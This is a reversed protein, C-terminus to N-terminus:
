FVVTERRPVDWVWPLGALRAIVVTILLYFCYHFFGSGFDLDLSALAALAGLVFFPPGVILWVWLGEADAVLQRAFFAWGAWLLVYAAACISARLYLSKGRYPELDDGPRLIAYGAAAIPPSVALLGLAALLFHNEFLDRRSGFHAVAATALAAGAVLLAMKVSFRTDTRGIPKLVLQGTAGRSGGFQEPGHIKVEEGKAPVSITAKCNPCAGSKGAFQDSVSFRKRCGPCVVTIAM